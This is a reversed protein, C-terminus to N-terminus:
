AALPGAPANPVSAPTSVRVATPSTFPSPMGSVIRMVPGPVGTRSATTFPASPVVRTAGNSGNPPSKVPPPKTAVPSKSRSPRESTTTVGSRPPPGRTTRKESKVSPMKEWRALKKPISSGAKRPPAREPTPSMLASPTISRATHQLGGAAAAETLFRARERPGSHEGSLILKLAVLRDVGIQRAKYVVGMGGRGVEGLLEYKGVSQAAFDPSSRGLLHGNLSSSAAAGDGEVARHVQFLQELDHRWQPFRAYWDAPDPRQGLQERAVFETYILELASEPDSALEPFAAFLDEATDPEGVRLRRELEACARALGDQRSAEVQPQPSM